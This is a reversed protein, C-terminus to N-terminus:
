EWEIEHYAAVANRPNFDDFLSWGTRQSAGAHAAADQMTGGNRVMRRVDAQLLKLYGVMASVADPWPMSAPGHGPVVRAAKRAKLQEITSLWGALNGDLAPVHGAFLLDGLFWTSTAQDFVTLDTNSHSTPWAEVILPRNGLELERRDTVLLTPLIITTGAFAEAGILGQWAAVYREQRATLAGPFNKHAVFTTEDAAFAANGFVHDPHVHTNVVYRIPLSTRTRVAQLLRRGALYSGTTDIVAVADRGVIFGANGVAGANDPAPLGYPAQYVFVGDAIEQVPLPHDPQSRAGDSLLLLSPITMAAVFARWPRARIATPHGAAWERHRGSILAGVWRKGSARRTPL